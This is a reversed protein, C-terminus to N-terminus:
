HTKTPETPKSSKECSKGSCDQNLKERSAEVCKWESYEARSHCHQGTYQDVCVYQKETLIWQELGNCQDPGPDGPCSRNVASCYTEPRRRMDEPRWICRNTNGCYKRSLDNNRSCDPQKCPQVPNSTQAVSLIIVVTAAAILSWIRWVLTPCAIWSMRKMMEDGGDGTRNKDTRLAEKASFVFLTLLM